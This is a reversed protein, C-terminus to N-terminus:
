EGLEDLLAEARMAFPAAENDAICRRAARLHMLESLVDPPAAENSAVAVRVWENEDQGLVRLTEPLCSKHLLELVEALSPLELTVQGRAESQCVGM